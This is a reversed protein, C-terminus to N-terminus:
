NADVYSEGRFSSAVRGWGEDGFVQQVVQRVAKYLGAGEDPLTPPSLHAFPLEPIRALAEDDDDNADFGSDLEIPEAPPEPFPAISGADLFEALLYRNKFRVM